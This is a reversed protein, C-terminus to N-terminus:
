EASKSDLKARKAAGDHNACSVGRRSLAAKIGRITRGTKEAIEEVTMNSIDGLDEIPDSSKKANSVTQEPMSTIQGARFLSLAKGRISSVTKDFRAALAEITAGESVMSVFTAEEDPTYTRPAAKKDAKRVLAFLEMNLLKGQIQKPTFAGQEFLAAIETYTMANANAEVLSRLEAEQAPTWASAKAVAKQVEFGLKRLKAGVSRATTGLEEGISALAEQTVPSATGALQTLKAESEENWTFKSM